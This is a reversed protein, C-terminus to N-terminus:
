QMFKLLRVATSCFVLILINEDLELRSSNEHVLSGHM